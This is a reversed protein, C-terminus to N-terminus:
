YIVWKLTFIAIGDTRYEFYSCKKHLARIHTTKLHITKFVMGCGILMKRNGNKWYCTRHHHHTRKLNKSINQLVRHYKMAM